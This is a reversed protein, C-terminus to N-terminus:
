AYFREVYRVIFSQATQPLTALVHRTSNIKNFLFMKIQDNNFFSISANSTMSTQRFFDFYNEYAKMLIPSSQSYINFVEAKKWNYLVFLNLLKLHNNVEMKNILFKKQEYKMLIHQEDILQIKWLRLNAYNDFDRYFELLPQKSGYKECLRQARKFAFVLIRHKLSNFSKERFAPVSNVRSSKGENRLSNNYIVEDGECCFRGIKQAFVFKGTPLLHFLYISQHQISLIAFLNKYLYIGHNFTGFIKDCNIKITDTIKGQDIDILMFDYDELNRSNISISENNQYREYFSNISDNSINISLVIMYRNDDTFLCCDRVFLQNSTAVKISHKHKFFCNFLRHRITTNEVSPRLSDTDISSITSMLENAESAGKYQYLEVSTADASFGMLYRGDNTFKRFYCNPREVSEVSFNPVLNQYLKNNKIFPHVNTSSGYQRDFLKFVINQRCRKRQNIIKALRRSGDDDDSSM